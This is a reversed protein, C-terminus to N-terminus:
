EEEAMRRRWAAYSDAWERYAAFISDRLARVAPDAPAWCGGVLRTPEGPVQMLTTVVSVRGCNLCLELLREGASTFRTVEVCTSTGCADCPDLAFCWAINYPAKLTNTYFRQWAPRASPAQFTPTGLLFYALPDEIEGQLGGVALVQMSGCASCTGLFAESGAALERREWRTSTACDECPTSARDLADTIDGERRM